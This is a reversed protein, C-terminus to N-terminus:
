FKINKFISKNNPFQYQKEYIHDYKVHDRSYVYCHKTKIPLNMSLCWFSSDTLIITSANIIIDIYYPLKHNIFYNAISYFAHNKEYINECPNIVLINNKNLNLKDEIEEIKFVTGTSCTNHIFIYSIDQLTTYLEKSKPPYNIKFSNWFHIPEINMDIYFNFPLLEYSCPLKTM